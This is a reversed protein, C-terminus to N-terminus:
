KRRKIIQKNSHKKRKRTIKGMAVKGWPTKPNMGISSRGEGGGHPHSRPDQAVGRVSPRIGRHRSDGAKTMKQNSHDINSVQGIVATCLSSFIRIEGSPLKVIAKDEEVSQLYAASGASKILQAQSGPRYELCHFPTGVPINKLSLKNGDKIPATDSYVVTDGLKLLSTALIYKKTGDTYALLAIKATRNPDYEISLVKAKIDKKARQWDILRLFRKHEGGRHRTSVHGSADRGSQKKKISFLKNRTM